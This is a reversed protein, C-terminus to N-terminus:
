TKCVPYFSSEVDGVDYTFSTKTNTEFEITVLLATFSLSQTAIGTYSSLGVQITVVYEGVLM